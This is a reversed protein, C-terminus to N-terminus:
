MKWDSREKVEAPTFVGSFVGRSADLSVTHAADGTIPEVDAV